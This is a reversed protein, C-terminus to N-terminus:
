MKLQEPLLDMKIAFKNQWFYSNYIDSKPFAESIFFEDFFDDLQGFNLWKNLIDLYGTTIFEFIQAFLMNSNRFGRSIGIHRELLNLIIGGKICKSTRSDYVIDEVSSSSCEEKLSTMLNEFKM